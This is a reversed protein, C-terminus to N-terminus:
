KMKGMAITQNTRLSIFENHLNARCYTVTNAKACIYGAPASVRQGGTSQTMPDSVASLISLPLGFYPYKHPDSLTLVYWLNVIRILSQPVKSSISHFWKSLSSAACYFGCRFKASICITHQVDSHAIGTTSSHTRLTFLAQSWWILLQSMSLVKLNRTLLSLGTLSMHFRGTQYWPYLIWDM